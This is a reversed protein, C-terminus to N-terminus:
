IKSIQNKGDEKEMMEDLRKLDIRLNRVIRSAPIQGKYALRRVTVPHISLYESADDVSIWRKNM